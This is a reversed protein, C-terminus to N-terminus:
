FTKITSPAAPASELHALADLFENGFDMPDFVRDTDSSSSYVSADVLRAADEWIRAFSGFAAIEENGQMDEADETTKILWDEIESDQAKCSWLQGVPCRQPMQWLLGSTATWFSKSGYTDKELYRVSSFVGAKNKLLAQFREIWSALIIWDQAFAELIILVLVDWHPIKDPDSIVGYEAEYIMISNDTPCSQTFANIM